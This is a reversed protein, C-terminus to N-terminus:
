PGGGRKEDGTAPEGPPVVGADDTEDMAAGVMEESRELEKLRLGLRHMFLLGLLTVPLFTTIHYGGAFGM